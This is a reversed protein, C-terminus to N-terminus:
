LVPAIPFLPVPGLYFLGDRLTIPAHLVTRGSATDTRGLAAVALRAALAAGPEIKGDEKLRDIIEGAGQMRTDFLGAPRLEQDLALRGQAQLDLPGWNATLERVQLLGGADRWQPLAEAPKGRPIGGVVTSALSLRQMSSGLPGGQGEPLQLQLAEAIVDLEELGGGSAVRLPGLRATLRRLSVPELGPGEVRLVGLDVMARDVQGDIALVVQGSAEEALVDAEKGKGGEALRLRHVGPFRLDITFPDWLKAEGSVPPGQWTLGQPSTVRPQDFSVALSFPFGTFEPGDYVIDFGRELQQQRWSEIGEALAQSAWYWYGVVGLSILGLVAVCTVALNYRRMPAPSEQKGLNPSAM